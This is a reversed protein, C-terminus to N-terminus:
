PYPESSAIYGKQSLQTYLSQSRSSTIVNLRTARTILNNMSVRWYEKLPGLKAFQLNQLQERIDAAPMLFEDAFEDAEGEPDSTPHLHMILHGLKHALTFRLNETPLASNLYFFAPGKKEWCSVGDLKTTGFDALKVVGGAAEIVATLDPIPGRPLGWARRLAQAVSEPGGFEDPDLSHFTFVPEIELDHLLWRVHLRLAHMRAETQALIKVQLTKRKRHYLCPSDYGVVRDQSTLFTIPYRLAKSFAAVQVDNPQIFGREVKNVYGPTREIASALETQSLGRTERALTLLDPNLPSSM